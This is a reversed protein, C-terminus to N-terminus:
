PKPLSCSILIEHLQMIDDIRREPLKKRLFAIKTSYTHGSEVWFDDLM